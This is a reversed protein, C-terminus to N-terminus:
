NEEMLFMEEIKTIESVLTGENRDDDIFEYNLELIRNGSM